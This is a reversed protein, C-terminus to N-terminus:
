HFDKGTYKEELLDATATIAILPASIENIDLNELPVSHSLMVVDKLMVIGGCVLGFAEQTIEKLEAASVKGIPSTVIAWQGLREHEKLRIFVQQQRNGIPFLIGIVGDPANPTVHFNSTIYKELDNWTAMTHREKLQNLAFNGHFFCTMFVSTM